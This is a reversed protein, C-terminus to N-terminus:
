NRRVHVIHFQPQHTVKLSVGGLEVFQPQGPVPTNTVQMPRYGQAAVNATNIATLRERLTSSFAQAPENDTLVYAQSDAGLVHDLCSVLDQPRDAMIWPGPFPVLIDTSAVHQGYLTVSGKTVTCTRPSVEREELSRRVGDVSLMEPDYASLNGRLKWAWALFDREDNSVANVAAVVTSRSIMQLAKGLEFYDGYQALVDMRVALQGSLQDPAIWGRDILQALSAATTEYDEGRFIM